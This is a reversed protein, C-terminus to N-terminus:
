AEFRARDAEHCIGVQAELQNKRQESIENWHKETLAVELSYFYYCVPLTEDPHKEKIMRHAGTM